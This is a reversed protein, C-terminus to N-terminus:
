FHISASVMYTAGFLPRGLFVGSNSVGSGLVRTNGETIALTNTINTGTFQLDVGNNLKWLAGIDLTTYEPLPQTNQLDAWRKGVYTM